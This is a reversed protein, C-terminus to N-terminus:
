LQVVSPSSAKAIERCDARLYPQTNSGGFIRFAKAPLPTPLPPPNGPPYLSPLVTNYINIMSVVAGGGEGERGREKM